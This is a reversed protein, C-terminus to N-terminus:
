SKKTPKRWNKISTQKVRSLTLTQKPTDKTITSGAGITAGAGINVPAILQSGSGIFADDAINTQQKNIGDYNCTIVGAGINVAVGIIGDGIYSLHNIKSNKGIITKKVEVFNGVKAGSAIQTDPRIRAFPGIAVNDAIHAQTIISNAYITSNDGIITDTIICNAEIIVNNGIVVNGVLIVNIDILCDTGFDLKGRCDFRRYDILTLGQQMLKQAYREQVVRELVGLQYKDNVGAVEYKDACIIGQFIVNDAFALKVIDTLYLEQQQNNTDLKSLYKHLLEAKIAMIGTNVETINLQEKSADKHEIIASIDNNANRIIRGYGSADDLSATLIAAGTIQANALLEKITAIKLLPVDGYLILVIGSDINAMATNLADATGLQEKQLIWNIRTDNFSKKLIDHKYGCIVNVKDSCAYAIDLVYSLLPKQALKQLVKPTASFMRKGHGAALIVSQIM